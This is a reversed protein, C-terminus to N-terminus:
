IVAPILGHKDGENIILLLLTGPANIQLIKDFAKVFAKQHSGEDSPDRMKGRALM